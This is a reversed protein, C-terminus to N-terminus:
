HQGTPTVLAVNGVEASVASAHLLPAVLASPLSYTDAQSRDVQYGLDALSAITMRSLPNSGANLWGTMLENGFTSERWHAGATGAGGGGEVPVDGSGGLSHWEAVANAGTFRPDSGGVDTLLRSPWMTGIGLVHGMEHLVVQVFRGDAMLTAVDASDFRMLGARPLGDPGALCPGASGLIGNPGDIPVVEVDIVLDHIVGTAGASLCGTFSSGPDFDAVDATVVHSWRNAAQDFVARVTADMTGVTRLRIQYTGPTNPISTPTTTTPTGVPM